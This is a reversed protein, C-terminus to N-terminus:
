FSQIRKNFGTLTIKIHLIKTQYTNSWGNAVEFSDHSLLYWDMM